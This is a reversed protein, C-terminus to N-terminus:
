LCNCVRGCIEDHCSLKDMRKRAYFVQKEGVGLKIYPIKRELVSEGYNGVVIFPYKNKLSNINMMMIRYPYSMDTPVINVVTGNIYPKLKNWTQEGVVGDAKIGFERQFNYVADQTQNGFIGDIKGNYFGIKKLTSQLLEVDIGTSGYRLIKVFM